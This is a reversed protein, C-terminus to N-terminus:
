FNIYDFEREMTLTLKLQEEDSYWKAQNQQKPDVTHPLPISLRYNPSLLDLQNESVKVDISSGQEGPLSITIIMDECSATSPTKGSM